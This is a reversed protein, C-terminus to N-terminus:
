DRRGGEEPEDVHEGDTLEPRDDVEAVTQRGVADGVDEESADTEGNRAHLEALMADLMGADDLAEVKAATEPDVARSPTADVTPSVDLTSGDAEVDLDFAERLMVAKEEANAEGAKRLAPAPGVDERHNDIALDERLRDSVTILGADEFEALMGAIAFHYNAMDGALSDVPAIKKAYEEELEALDMEVNVEPRGLAEALDDTDEERLRELVDEVTEVTEDRAESAERQVETLRGEYQQVEERLDTVTSRLSRVQEDLTPGSEDDMVRAVAEHGRDTLTSVKVGVSEGEADIKRTEVLGLAELSNDNQPHDLRYHISGRKEIGTYSKIEATEAEGGHQYLAELVLKAERDIQDTVM